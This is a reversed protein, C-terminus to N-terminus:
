LSHSYYTEHKNTCLLKRVDMESSKAEKQSKITTAISQNFSAMEQDQLRRKTRDAQARAMALLEHRRQYEHLTDNYTKEKAAREKSLNVPINLLARQHCLYCLEQGASSKHSCTSPRTVAPTPGLSCYCSRSTCSTSTRRSSRGGGGSSSSTTTRTYSRSQFEGDRVAVGTQQSSTSLSGRSPQHSLSALVATPSERSGVLLMTPKPTLTPQSLKGSSTSKTPKKDSPPPEARQGKSLIKGNEGVICVGDQCANAEEKEGHEDEECITAMRLAGRDMQRSLRTEEYTSPSHGISPSNEGSSGRSYELSLSMEGDEEGVVPQVIRPLSLSSSSRSSPQPNSIISCISSDTSSSRFAGEMDCCGDLRYIFERFFSLKAKGDHITLRGIDKLDFEISKKAAVARSLAQLVERVAGEVMERRVGTMNSLQTYNLPHLPVQGSAHKKVCHLSHTQKFRESLVFVPRQILIARNNGVELKRKSFTFTGLGGISVGKQQLMHTEVFQAVKDWVHLVADETLSGILSLRNRKTESVLSGLTAAM